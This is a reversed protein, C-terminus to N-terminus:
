GSAAAPPIRLPQDDHPLTRQHGQDNFRGRARRYVGSRPGFHRRTQGACLARCQHGRSHGTRRSGRLRQHRQDARCLVHRARARLSLDARLQLPDICEYEIAYALRLVRLTVRGPITHLMALQVDEPMSTSLGQVYWEVTNLGEPELFLQHRDKDAFRMIKDEISPCYRAGTGHITGAYM